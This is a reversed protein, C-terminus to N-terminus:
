SRSYVGKNTQSQIIRIAEIENPAEVEGKDIYGKKLRNLMTWENGFLGTTVSLAILPILFIFVAISEGSSMDANAGAAQKIANLPLGFLLTLGFWSLARLWLKRVLMWIITGLPFLGFLGSLLATWSFGQKIIETKGEHSQMHWFKM